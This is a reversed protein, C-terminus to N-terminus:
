INSQCNNQINNRQLAVECARLVFTDNRIQLIKEVPYEKNEDLKNTKIFEDTEILCNGANLSDQKSIKIGSYKEIHYQSIKIRKKLFYLANKLAWKPDKSWSHYEQDKYVVLSGVRGHMVAPYVKFGFRKYAKNKQIWCSSGDSTFAKYFYKNRSLWGRGVLIKRTSPHYVKPWRYANPYRVIKGTPTTYHSSIGHGYPADNGKIIEVEHNGSDYAWSRALYEEKILKKTIKM